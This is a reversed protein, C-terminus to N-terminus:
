YGDSDSDGGCCSYCSSGCGCDALSNVSTDFSDFQLAERLKQLEAYSNLIEKDM